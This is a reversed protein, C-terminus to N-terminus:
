VPSHFDATIRRFAGLREFLAPQVEEIGHDHECPRCHRELVDPAVVSFSAM